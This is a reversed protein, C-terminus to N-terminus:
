AWYQPAILERVTAATARDRAVVVLSSLALPRRLILGNAAATRGTRWTDVASAALGLGLYAEAAGEIELITAGTTELLSRALRPYQSVVNMGVGAIESFGLPPEVLAILTLGLSSDAVLHCAVEFETLVDGGCLAADIAGANLLRPLSRARFRGFLVNEQGQWVLTADSAPRPTGPLLLAIVNEAVSGAAVGFRLPQSRRPRGAIRPAATDVSLRPLGTARRRVTRALAPLVVRLSAAVHAAEESSLSSGRNGAVNVVRIDHADVWKEVIGPLDPVLAGTLDLLPRNLAVAAERTAQSGDTGHYDWLLTGDALYVNAWTRFRFSPSALEMLLADGLTRRPTAGSDTAETRYDTPLVGFAPLGFSTAATLGLTDVGTQGGSLVAIEPAQRVRSFLTGETSAASSRGIRAGFIVNLDTPAQARAGVESLVSRTYGDAHRAADPPSLRMLRHALYAGAFSDGAGVVSTVTVAEPSWEAVVEGAQWVRGPEAGATVVIEVDPNPQHPDSNVLGLATAEAETAFVFAVRPARRTLLLWFEQPDLLTDVIVAVSEARLTPPNWDVASRLTSLSVIAVDAEALMSVPVPPGPHVLTGRHAGSSRDLVCVAVAEIEDRHHVLPRVGVRRLSDLPNLLTPLVRRGVTGQWTLHFASLQLVVAAFAHLANSACGGASYSCFDYQAATALLETLDTTYALAPRDQHSSAEPRM